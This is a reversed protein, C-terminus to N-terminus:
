GHHALIGDVEELIRRLEFPKLLFAQAGLALAEERVQPSANGTM